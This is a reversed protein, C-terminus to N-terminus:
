RATELETAPAAPQVRLWASLDREILEALRVIDQRYVEVLESRLGSDLEGRELAAPRLPSLGDRLRVPLHPRLATRLAATRTWALRLLPNRLEGTPAPRGGPDVRVEPDVGLFGFLDALLGAPDRELDEHLYVRVRESGFLEIYPALFHHYRGCGLYSGFAVEDPLGRGLEERVVTAFEARPELGDRRRGLFHAHAREAPDRLIAVIRARPCAQEIRLPARLSQLYPPSVEGVRQGPAAAAFLQAYDDRDTVWAAAMRRLLPGEWEPLPDACVFHNPSKEAPIFIEPHRGLLRHLATTGSRGAGVVFFDPLTM